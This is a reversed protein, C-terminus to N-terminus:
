FIFLPVSYTLPDPIFHILPLAFRCHSRARDRGELAELGLGELGLALLREVVKTHGASAACMLGTLGADDTASTDCGAAALAEVCELQGSGCSILFATAGKASSAELEALTLALLRKVVATHGKEAAYMLGTLGDDNTAATDCGAAVLAEM